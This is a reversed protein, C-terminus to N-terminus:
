FRVHAALSFRGAVPEQRHFVDDAGARVAFELPNFPVILTADLELDFWTALEWAVGLGGVLGAWTGFGTETASLGVGQAVSLGLALGMCGHLFRAEEFPHICARADLTGTTVDAGSEATRVARQGFVFTARLRVDLLPVGFGGEVTLAGSASPVTGLDLGGAIGVFGEIPVGRGDQDDVEPRSSGDREVHPEVVRERILEREPPPATGGVTPTPAEPPDVPSALQTSASRTPENAPAAPSPELDPSETRPEPELTAVASPDIMLALVLAAASGLDDCADGEIVREGEAGAMSTRLTLRWGGEAAHAVGHADLDLQEPLEGGLLRLVEARVVGADPCEDPADWAIALQAHAPAAGLCLLGVFWSLSEIRTM